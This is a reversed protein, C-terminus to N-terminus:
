NKAHSQADASPEAVSSTATGSDRQKPGFAKHISYLVMAALAGAPVALWVAEREVIMPALVFFMGVPPIDGPKWKMADGWRALAFVELPALVAGAAAWQWVNRFHAVIAVRRLVFGGIISDVCGFILSFFYVTLLNSAGSSGHLTAHGAAAAHAWVALALFFCGCIWAALYYALSGSRTM